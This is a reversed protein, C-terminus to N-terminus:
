FPPDKLFGDVCIDSDFNFTRCHKLGEKESTKRMAEGVPVLGADGLENPSIYIRVQDALGQELFSNIIKAGGEVLLQQVGKKGLEDLMVNIDCHGNNGAIGLIDAGQEFFQQVKHQKEMISSITTVILTPFDKAEAVKSEFPMRLTSDMIVRLPKRGMDPRPTLQPNDSLVTDIGVLIGQSARRIKHVDRRSAENSIWRNHKDSLFGDKSQAWKLIVWPRVTRAFKFFAPNLMMAEQECLGTVVEVGAKRLEKIGKGGVKETPDEVAVYVRGIRANIIELTCPGTRGKHCCPELTVYMQAGETEARNERCDAIANVEAHAKGIQKHRGRGIIENNNVIVCGVKPNPEVMGAGKEALQLAAKMFKVDQRTTKRM